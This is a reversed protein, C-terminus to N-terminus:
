NNYRKLFFYLLIILIVIAFTGFILYYKHESKSEHHDDELPKDKQVLGQPHNAPTYISYLNLPEKTSTNIINHWTGKPIIIATGDKLPKSEMNDKNKGVVFKGIGSEFRIFQDINDHMELGIDGGPKISMTVLQLNKSPSTYLVNRYNTENLTIKEINDHYTLDM